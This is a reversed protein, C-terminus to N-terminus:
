RKAAKIQCGLLPAAFAAGKKQRASLSLDDTKLSNGFADVGFFFVGGAPLTKENM